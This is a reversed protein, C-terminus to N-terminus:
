SLLGRLERAWRPSQKLAFQQRSRARSRWRSRQDNHSRHAADVLILALQVSSRSGVFMEGVQTINIKFLKLNEDGDNDQSFLIVNPM